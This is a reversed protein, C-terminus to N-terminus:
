FLSCCCHVDSSVFTWLPPIFVLRGSLSFPLSQLHFWWSCLFPPPDCKSLPESCFFVLLKAVIHKLERVYFHSPAFAPFPVDHFVTSFDWVLRRVSPTTSLATWPPFRPCTHLVPLHSCYFIVAIIHRHLPIIIERKTILEPVRWKKFVSVLKSFFDM